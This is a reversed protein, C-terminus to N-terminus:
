LLGRSRCASFVNKEIRVVIPAPATFLLELEATGAEQDLFEIRSGAFPYHAFVLYGVRRLVDRERQEVGVAGAAVNHELPTSPVYENSGADWGRSVQESKRHRLSRLAEDGENVPRTLAILVVWIGVNGVVYGDTESSQLYATE